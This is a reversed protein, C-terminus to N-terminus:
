EVIEVSTRHGALTGAVKAMTRLARATRGHRGIVKGVDEPHVRLEYVMRRSEPVCAVRVEEPHEVIARACYEIVELVRDGSGESLEEDAEGALAGAVQANPDVQVAEVGPATEVAEPDQSTPEVAEPDQSTPEVLGSDPADPRDEPTM